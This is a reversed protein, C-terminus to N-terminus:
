EPEVPLGESIWGNVGSELHAVNDYGMEQLTVAALASRGGGACTLIIRRSSDFEPRYYPSTPDAYFELMGRPAAVSGSIVGTASREEPERLDILTAGQRLEQDVQGANLNEIRAKAEAVQEAASKPMAPGGSPTNSQPDNAYEHGYHLLRGSDLM